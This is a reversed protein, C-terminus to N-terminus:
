VENLIDQEFTNCFVDSAVSSESPFFSVGQITRSPWIFTVATTQPQLPVSHMAASTLDTKILNSSANVSTAGSFSLASCGDMFGDSLLVLHQSHKINEMVADTASPNRKGANYVSRLKPLQKPAIVSLSVFSQAYSKAVTEADALWQPTQFESNGNQMLAEALGEAIAVEGLGGGCFNIDSLWKQFLDFNKTWPSWQVSCVSHPGHSYFVILAMEIIPGSSKQSGLENGSFSRIIKDIYESRLLSWDPGLAATGEIVLILQHASSSGQTNM